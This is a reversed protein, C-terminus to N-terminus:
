MLLYNLPWTLPHCVHFRNPRRQRGDQRHSIKVPGPLTMAGKGGPDAVTCQHKNVIYLLFIEAVLEIIVRCIKEQYNTTQLNCM